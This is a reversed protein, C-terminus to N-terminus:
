WVFTETVDSSPRGDDPSYQSFGTLRAAQQWVPESLRGDVQVTTEIRPIEVRLNRETGVYVNAGAAVLLGLLLASVPIM